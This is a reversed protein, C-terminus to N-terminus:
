VPEIEARFAYGVGHVTAIVAHDLRGGELKRRLRRVRTDISRDFLDAQTRTAHLLDTRSLVKQPAQLFATLMAFEGRTLRVPAQGDQRLLRTASDLDWVGFRLRTGSAGASRLALSRRRLITRIRATLERLDIPSVLYDDAGMELGLIRDALHRRHATVLILAGDYRARLRRMVDLGDEGFTDLDLLVLSPHHDLAALLATQDQALAVRMGAQRLYPPFREPLVELSGAALIRPQICLREHDAASAPLPAPAQAPDGRGARGRELDGNM